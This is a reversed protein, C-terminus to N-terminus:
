RVDFAFDFRNGVEAHEDLDLRADISQHVDGIQRPGLFNPMRRLDRLLAVLDFRHYEADIDLVLPDAEADLLQRLIRPVGNRLAVREVGADVALHARDRVE